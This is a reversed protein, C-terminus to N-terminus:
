DSTIWLGVVGIVLWLVAMTTAFDPSGSVVYSVAWIGAMILATRLWEKPSLLPHVLAKNRRM